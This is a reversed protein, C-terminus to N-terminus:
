VRGRTLRILQNMSKRVPLQGYTARLRRTLRVRMEQTIDRLGCLLLLLLQTEDGTISM